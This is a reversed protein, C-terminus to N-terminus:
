PEALASRLKAFAATLTRSVQAQSLGLREAIHQQTLDSYFRLAVVERERRTLLRFAGRLALRTESRGLESEPSAILTADDDFTGYAVSGRREQHRRLEGIITPVAYAGLDDGREVDFRDVAKILGIAGAQVLDDTQEPSCSFRRALARVLPLNREIAQDRAARDDAEHYRSLLELTDFTSTLATGGGSGSRVRCRSRFRTFLFLHFVHIFIDPSACLHNRIRRCRSRGATAQAAATDSRVATAATAGEVARASSPSGVSSGDTAASASAAVVAAVSATAAEGVGSTIASVPVTGPSSAAGTTSAGSVVGDCGAGVAGAPSVAICFGAGIGSGAVCGAGPPSIVGVVVSVAASVGAFADGDVGDVGGTASGAGGAGVGPGALMLTLTRMSLGPSLPGTEWTLTVLPDTVGSEVAESVSFVGTAGVGFLPVCPEAAGDAGWPVLSEDSEHYQFQFQRPAAGIEAIDGVPDAVPENGEEQVHIQFQPSL